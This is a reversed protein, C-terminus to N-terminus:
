YLEKGKKEDWIFEKSLNDGKYISFKEKLSIKLNKTKTIVNDRMKSNLSKLSRNSMKIKTSDKWKQTKTEM